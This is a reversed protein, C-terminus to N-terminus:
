PQISVAIIIICKYLVLLPSCQFKLELLSEGKVQIEASTGPHGPIHMLFQSSLLDIPCYVNQFQWYCLIQWPDAILSLNSNFSLGFNM